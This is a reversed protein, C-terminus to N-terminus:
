ISTEDKCEAAREKAYPRAGRNWILEKLYKAEGVLLNAQHKQPLFASRRFSVIFYRRSEFDDGRSAPPLSSERGFTALFALSSSYWSFEYGFHRRQLVFSAFTAHKVKRRKAQGPKVISATEANSANKKKGRGGPRSMASRKVKATEFELVSIMVKYGEQPHSGDRKNYLPAKLTM